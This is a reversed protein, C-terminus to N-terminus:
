PLEFAGELLESTLVYEYTRPAIETFITNGIRTFVRADEVFCFGEIQSAKGFCRYGKVKEIDVIELFSSCFGGADSVSGVYACTFIEGTAVVENRPGFDGTISLDQGTENRLIFTYTFMKEEGDLGSGCSVATLLAFFTATKRM